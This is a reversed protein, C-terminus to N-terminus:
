ALIPSQRGETQALDGYIRATRAAYTDTISAESATLLSLFASLVNYQVLTIVAPAPYEFVRETLLSVISVVVIPTQGAIGCLTCAQAARHGSQVTRGRPFSCRASRASRITLRSTERSTATSPGWARLSPPSCAVPRAPTRPRHKWWRSSAHELQVREYGGKRERIESHM